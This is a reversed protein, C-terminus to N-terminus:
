RTMMQAGSLAGSAVGKTPEDFINDITLDGKTPPMVGGTKPENADQTDVPIAPDVIAVETAPKMFKKFLFYAVVAGGGLLIINRTKM